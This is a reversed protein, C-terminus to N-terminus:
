SSLIEDFIKTRLRTLLFLITHVVLEYKTYVQKRFIVEQNLMTQRLVEKCSDTYIQPSNLSCDGGMLMKDEWSNFIKEVRLNFRADIPTIMNHSFSEFQMKLVM